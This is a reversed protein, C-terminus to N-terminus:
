DPEGPLKPAGILYAEACAADVEAELRHYEATSKPTGHKRVELARLRAVIRLLKASTDEPATTNTM